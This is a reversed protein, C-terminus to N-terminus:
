LLAERASHAAEFSPFVQGCDLCTVVQTPHNPPGPPGQLWGHTCLGRARLRAERNALAQLEAMELDADQTGSPLDPDFM